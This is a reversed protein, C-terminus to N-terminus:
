LTSYWVQLLLKMWGTRSPHKLRERQVGDGLLLLLLTPFLLLYYFLERTYIDFELDQPTSKNKGTQYQHFHIPLIRSSVETTVATSSTPFYAQMFRFFLKLFSSVNSTCVFIIKFHIQWQIQFSYNHYQQLEM